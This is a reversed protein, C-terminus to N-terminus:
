CLSVCDGVLSSAIASLVQMTRLDGNCIRQLALFGGARLQLTFRAGRYNTRRSGDAFM